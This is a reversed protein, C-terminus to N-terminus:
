LRTLSLFGFNKRLFQAPINCYHMLAECLITGSGCMCDWMLKDGNWGSLKIIAAALIEQMPADVKALRYGRKHLSEGSTDISIVARNKDIRLNFRVDPNKIDVDPRKGYKDRFYDAISDKLCLSAYKSHTINSDAISATIAFTKSLSLFSEWKIKLSAKILENTSKCPFSVLPALIRTILRSSYNIKYLTDLDTTFYIGRYVPEIKEANFEVLEEKCLEEMKGPVQAFYRSNKQYDFM